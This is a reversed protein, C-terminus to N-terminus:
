EEALLFIYTLVVGCVVLYVGADFLLPTGVGLGEAGPLPLKWWSAALYAESRLLGWLGSGGATLLGVAIMLRPEVRLLGRASAVDFAMAHLSFAAAAVLGGVFGGGPDNHGRWLLFLSLLLMLPLLLRAVTRLILSSM